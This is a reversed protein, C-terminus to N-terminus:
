LDKKFPALQKNLLKSLPTLVIALMFLKEQEWIEKWSWNMTNAIVPTYKFRKM